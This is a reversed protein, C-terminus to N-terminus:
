IWPTIGDRVIVIIAWSFSSMVLYKRGRRLAVSSRQM